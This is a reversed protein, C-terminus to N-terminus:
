DAGTYRPILQALKKLDVDNHLPNSKTHVKLIQLREDENPISVYILRDIRGPRLLAPDIANPRNTAGIVFVGKITDIGDLTALLQNIVRDREQGGGSGTGSSRPPALADLEDFFVICPALQRAKKFLDRIMRPSESFWKSLLEPGKVVLFNSRIQNAIAKAVLTKGTGPPGYLLVGKPPKIGMESFIEPHHIPWAITEQIAQKVDKLGGIENWSVQPIQPTFEKTASPKIKLLSNILDEQSLSLKMQDLLLNAQDQSETFEFDKEFIEYKELAKMGAEKLLLELDAPTFGYTRDAIITLNVNKELPIGRTLVKLIDIRDIKSPIPINIEVEFRGYTKLSPHIQDANECTGLIVIQLKSNKIQSLNSILRETLRRELDTINPGPVPALVDIQDIVM